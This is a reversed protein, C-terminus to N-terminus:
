GADRGPRRWRDALERRRLDSEELTRFTQLCPEFKAVLILHWGRGCKKRSRRDRKLAKWTRYTAGKGKWYCEEGLFYLKENVRGYFFTVTFEAM